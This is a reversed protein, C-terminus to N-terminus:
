CDILWLTGEWFGTVKFFVQTMFGKITFNAVFLTDQQYWDVEISDNLPYVIPFFRQVPKPLQEFTLSEQASLGFVGLLIAIITSTAKNM